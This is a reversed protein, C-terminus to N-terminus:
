TKTPQQLRRVALEVRAVRMGSPVPLGAKMLCSNLYDLGEEVSAVTAFPHPPPSVWHIATMIGRTLASEFITATGINYVRSLPKMKETEDTIITRSRADPLRVVRRTDVLHVWRQKRNLLENQTRFYAQFFREDPAPPLVSVVFPFAEDDVEPLHSSM